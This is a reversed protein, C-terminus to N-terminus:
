SVCAIAVYLVQRATTGDDPISMLGKIGGCCSHGIVVINEVQLNYSCSQPYQFVLLLSFMFFTGSIGFPSKVILSCDERSIKKSTILLNLNTFNFMKVKKILIFNIM